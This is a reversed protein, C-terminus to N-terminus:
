GNGSCTEGLCDDINEDCMPGTFGPVCQTCNLNSGEFNQACPVTINMSIKAVTRTFMRNGSPVNLPLTIVFLFVDIIQSTNGIDWDRTEIYLEVGQM